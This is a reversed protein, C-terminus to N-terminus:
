QFLRISHHVALSIDVYLLRYFLCCTEHILGDGPRQQSILYLVSLAVPTLYLVAYNNITFTDLCVLINHIYGSM